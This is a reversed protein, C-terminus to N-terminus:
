ADHISEPEIHAHFFEALSIPNPLHITTSALPNEMKGIGHKACDMTLTTVPPLKWGPMVRGPPIVAINQLPSVPSGGTVTESAYGKGVAICPTETSTFPSRAGMSEITLEPPVWCILM